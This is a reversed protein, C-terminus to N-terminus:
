SSVTINNFHNKCQKCKIILFLINIINAMSIFFICNLEINFEPNKLNPKIFFNYKKIKFIIELIRIIFPIFSNLVGYLIATNAADELGYNLNLKFRLHPKLVSNDLKYILKSFSIKFNRKNKKDKKKKAKIINQQTKNKDLNIKFNYINIKLDKNNYIITIKIPIPIFSILLVILLITILYM